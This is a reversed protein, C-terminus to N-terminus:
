QRRSVRSSFSLWSQNSSPPSRAVCNKDTASPSSSYQSSNAKHKNKPALQIMIIYKEAM